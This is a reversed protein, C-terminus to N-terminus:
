RRICRWEGERAVGDWNLRHHQSRLEEIASQWQTDTPPNGAALWNFDHSPKPEAERLVIPCGPVMAALVEFFEQAKVM